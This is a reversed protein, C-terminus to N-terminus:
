MRTISIVLAIMIMLVGTSLHHEPRQFIRDYEKRGVLRLLDNLGFGLDELVQDITISSMVM